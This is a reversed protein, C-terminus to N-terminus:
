FIREGLDSAFFIPGVLGGAARWDRVCLVISHVGAGLDVAVDRPVDRTGDWTGHRPGFEVVRIGDLFLEFYDAVSECRLTRRGGPYVFRTRFLAWGEFVSRGGNVLPTDCRVPTWDLGAGHDALARWDMPPPEVRISSPWGPRAMEWDTLVLSTGVLPGIEPPPELGPNDVRRVLADWLDRGAPTDHRFASVVRWRGQSRFEIVLPNRRLAGSHVDWQEVLVRTGAAHTLVRGSLLEVTADRLIRERPLTPDLVRVFPSWWTNEACKWAGKAPGLVGGRPPMVSSHNSDRSAPPTYPPTTRAPGAARGHWAWDAPSYKPTGDYTLLGLPTHKLDRLGCVVYGADPLMHALTEIQFRRMDLAARYSEALAASHEAATGERADDGRGDAIEAAYSPNLTDAVMTEGLLLPRVLKGQMRQAYYTWVANHVYPHEDHFDGDHENCLWGSNDLVLCGPILERALNVLARGLGPSVRDNECTLTRLVICRHRRDQLFMERFEFLIADDDGGRDGPRGTRGLPANWVPYEQWALMGMEDCLDFYWPPPIWLCFKILNFGLSRVHEIEFRAQSEDPWPHGLEPYYGWHLIGRVVLPHGDLYLRTGRAACRPEAPPPTPTPERRFVVDLAGARTRVGTWRVGITPLFGNSIHACDTCVIELDNEARPDPHLLPTADFEFPTWAGVHEAAVRGNVLVTARTAAAGVRIWTRPGAPHFRLRHVSPPALPEAAAAQPNDRADSVCNERLAAAAGAM